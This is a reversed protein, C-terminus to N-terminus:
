AECPCTYREATAGGALLESGVVVTLVVAQHSAFSTCVSSDKLLKQLKQSRNSRWSHTDPCASCLSIVGTHIFNPSQFRRKMMPGSLSSQYCQTLSFSMSILNSLTSPIKRQPDEMQIHYRKRRRVNWGQFVLKSHFVNFTPSRLVAWQNEADYKVFDTASMWEAKEGFRIRPERGPIREIEAVTNVERSDMDTKNIKTIHPHWFRTVIEFFISDDEVSMTTNRLSNTTLHLKHPPKPKPQRSM